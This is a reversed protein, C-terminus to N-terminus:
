CEIVGLESLRVKDSKDLEDANIKNKYLRGHYIFPKIVKIVETNKAIRSEPTVTEKKSVTRAKVATRKAM